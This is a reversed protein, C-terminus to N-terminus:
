TCWSSYFKFYLDICHDHEYQSLSVTSPLYRAYGVPLHPSPLSVPYINLASARERPYRGLHRFASTPGHLHLDGAEREVQSSHFACVLPGVLHDLTWDRPDHPNNKMEDRDAKPPTAGVAADEGDGTGPDVGHQRLLRELDKVRTM